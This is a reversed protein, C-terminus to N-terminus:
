PAVILRSFQNPALTERVYALFQCKAALFGTYAAFTIMDLKM